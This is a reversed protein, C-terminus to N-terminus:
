FLVELVVADEIVIENPDADDHTGTERGAIIYCHDAMVSVKKDLESKRTIFSYQYEDSGERIEWASTGDLSEMNEYEDSGYEPFDREDERDPNHRSVECVDGVKRVKDEFRLGFYWYEADEFHKEMLTEIKNILEANTM